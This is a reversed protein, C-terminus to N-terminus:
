HLQNPAVATDPGTGFYSDDRAYGAILAVINDPFRQLQANYHELANNYDFRVHAIADDHAAMTDQLTRFAASKRLKSDTDCHLLAKALVQSVERNARIKRAASHASSLNARALALERWLTSDPPFGGTAEMLAPLAAGRRDLATEVLRWKEQIAARQGRLGDRIAVYRMQAAVAIVAIAALVLLSPKRRM